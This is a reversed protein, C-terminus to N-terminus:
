HLPLLLRQHTKFKEPIKPYNLNEEKPDVVNAKSIEEVASVTLPQDIEFHEFPDTFLKTKTELSKFLEM